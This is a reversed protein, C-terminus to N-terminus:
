LIGPKRLPWFYIYPLLMLIGFDLLGMFFAIFLHMLVGVVLFWKKIGPFWVVVCFLLQYLLIFYNLFPHLFTTQWDSSHYGFPLFHKTELTYAVAQGSLWTPDLLKALGSLFYLLCTQLLVALVGMNHFVISVPGPPNSEKKPLFLLVCNFLLLQNLLFNGGSLTSYIRNHLNLVLFWLFLDICFLLFYPGNKLFLRGTALVLLAILALHALSPSPYQLLLFALDNVAGISNFQTYVISDAGFLLDFYCLWYISKVILFIYLCHKFWHSQLQFRPADFFYALLKKM